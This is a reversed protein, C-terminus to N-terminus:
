NNDEAKLEELKRDAADAADSMADRAKDAQEAAGAKLDAASEKLDASTEDLQEGAKELTGKEKLGLTEKSKDQLQEVSNDLQEGAKEAPGQNDCAALGFATVSTLLLINLLSKKM